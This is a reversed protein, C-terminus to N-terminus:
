SNIFHQHYISGITQRMGLLVSIGNPGILKFFRIISDPDYINLKDLDSHFQEYFKEDRLKTSCSKIFPFSEPSIFIGTSKYNYLKEAINFFLPSNQSIPSRLLLLEKLEPNCGFVDLPACSIARLISAKVNEM